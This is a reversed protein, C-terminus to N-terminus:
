FILVLHGYGVINHSDSLYTEKMLIKYVKLISQILFGREISFKSIFISELTM